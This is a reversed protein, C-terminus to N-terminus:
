KIKDVVVVVQNLLYHLFMVMLYYFVMLLLLFEISILDVDYYTNLHNLYCYIQKLYDDVVILEVVFNIFYFNEFNFYINM